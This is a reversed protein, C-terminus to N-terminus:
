MTNGRRGWVICLKFNIHDGKQKVTSLHHVRRLKGGRPGIEIQCFTMKFNINSNKTKTYIPVKNARSYVKSRHVCDPNEIFKALKPVTVDVGPETRLM